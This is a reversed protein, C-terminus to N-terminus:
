FTIRSYFSDESYNVWWQKTLEVFHLGEDAAPAEPLHALAAAYAPMITIVIIASTM